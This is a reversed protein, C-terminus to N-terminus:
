KAHWYVRLLNKNIVDVTEIGVVVKVNGETGGLLANTDPDPQPFIIQPAPPIGNTKLAKKRDAAVLTGTNESGDAFFRIPKGTELDMIYLSGQSVFACPDASAAADVQFTTALIKGEFTVVNSLSKEGADLAVKWGDASALANRATQSVTADLSAINNNTTDYLNSSLITNSTNAPPGQDVDLDRLMYFNNVQGELLPNTRNGTGVTISLFNAPSAQNYAVSPPYFIPQHDNDDLNAFRKVSPTNNINDFDVRWIQGGFDGVYIRDARGDMDSDIITLDSPIAYQLNSDNSSDAKWVRSGTRDVMYIAAGKSAVPSTEPDLTAADYGGGFALVDTDVGNKNVTILSMRSWTEGLDAFDAQSGNIEWKLTPSSPDTVDMAYYSDGGRRMGFVLLVEESNNVIGDNNTDDHWPTIQGDLGYIHGDAPDNAVMRSVNALLRKPMFAFLEEGGTTDDPDAANPKTADIAHLLGQNTMVYVVRQTPYDITVAKSHLPAGMPITHIWDAYEDRSASGAPLGLLVDTINANGSDLEYDASSSLDVGTAPITNGTYTYINRTGSLLQENAGGSTVEDGDAIDSWFSQATDAFRLIGDTGVATAAANNLDQLGSQNLYYGKLNGEWHRDASPKFLSFYTRNDHSFNAKSIDLSLETFSESGGLVEFIIEDLATTLDSPKEANFFRGDGELALRELYDQGYDGVDFGM